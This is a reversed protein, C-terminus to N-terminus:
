LVTGAFDGAVIPKKENVILGTCTDERVDQIKVLGKFTSGRYINFVFGPEVGDKKGKDLMVLKLDSRVDLVHAGIPPPWSCGSTAIDKVILAIRADLREVRSQLESNERELEGIRVQADELRSEAGLACGLAVSPVVLSVIWARSLWHM